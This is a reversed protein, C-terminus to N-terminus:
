VKIPTTTQPKEKMELLTNELREFRLSHRHAFALEKQAKVTGTQSRVLPMHLTPLPESSLMTVDRSQPQFSVTPGTQMGCKPPADQEEFDDDSFSAIIDDLVPVFGQYHKGGPRDGVNDHM